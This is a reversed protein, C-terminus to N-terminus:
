FFFLYSMTNFFNEKILITIIFALEKFETGRTLYVVFTALCAFLLVKIVLACTSLSKWNYVYPELSVGESNYSACLIADVCEGDQKSDIMKKLDTYTFVSSNKSLSSNHTYFDSDMVSLRYQNQGPMFEVKIVNKRGFSDFIMSIPVERTVANHVLATHLTHKNCSIKDFTVAKGETDYIVNTRFWRFPTTTM